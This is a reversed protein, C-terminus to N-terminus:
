KGISANTPKASTATSVATANTPKAPPLEAVVQKARDIEQATFEPSKAGNLHKIQLKALEDWSLNDSFHWTAIQAVTQSYKGASLGIVIERIEVKDTFSELPRIEYPYAPSPNPKGHELCVCPVTFHLTKEPPINFLPNANAGNARGNLGQGNRGGNQGIGNLNGGLTQPAQGKNGGNRNNGNNNQGGPLFQALVPVGVFGNPPQITLPRDTLNKIQLVMEKADRPILTAEIQKDELAKFFDLPDSGVPPEAAFGLITTSLVAIAAFIARSFQKCVIVSRWM